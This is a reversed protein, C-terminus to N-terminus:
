TIRQATEQAYQSRQCTLDLPEFVRDQYTSHSRWDVHTTHIDKSFLGPFFFLPRIRFRFEYKWSWLFRTEHYCLLSSRPLSGSLRSSQVPPNVSRWLLTMGHPLRTTSPRDFTRSPISSLIFSSASSDSDHSQASITLVVIPHHLPSVTSIATGISTLPIPFLFNSLLRFFSPLSQM